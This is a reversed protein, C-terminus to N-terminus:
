RTRTRKDKKIWGLRKFERLIAPHVPPMEKREILAKRLHSTAMENIPTYTETRAKRVHKLGLVIQLGEDKPIWAGMSNAFRNLTAHNIQGNFDERAIVRWSRGHRNQRLLRRATKEAKSSM